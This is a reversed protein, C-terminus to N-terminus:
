SGGRTKGPQRNFGRALDTRRREGGKAAIQAAQSRAERTRGTAGRATRAEETLRMESAVVVKVQFETPEVGEVSGRIEKVEFWRLPGYVSSDSEQEGQVQAGVQKLAARIADSISTGSTGVCEIMKYVTM